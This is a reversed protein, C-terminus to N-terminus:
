RLSLSVFIKEKKESSIISSNIHLSLLSKLAMCFDVPWISLPSHRRVRIWIKRRQGRNKAIRSSVTVVFLRVLFLRNKSTEVSQVHLGGEPAQSAMRTARGRPVQAQGTDEVPSVTPLHASNPGPELCTCPGDSSCHAPAGSTTSLLDTVTKHSCAPM